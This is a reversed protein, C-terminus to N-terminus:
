VVKSLDKKISPESKKETNIDHTKPISKNDSEIM